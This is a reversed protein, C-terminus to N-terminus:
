KSERNASRAIELAGDVPEFMQESVKVRSDIKHVKFSFEERTINAYRFVSGATGLPIMAEGHAFLTRVVSGALEALEAGARRLVDRATEDGANAAALVAPLLAAFDPSSASAAALQEVSELKWSAKVESFLKSDEPLDRTESNQAAMQLLANVATRGIWYGSGEDSISYGWGGARATKGNADRGYAISGTGAIVIVGPGSGLAAQMAIQMDGVVEIEGAVIEALMKQVVTAVEKRGAGAVGACARRVDKPDIKAAECAQRVAQHLSERARAEGVRAINSPGAVASGLVSVEDGVVCTTKTGGGDIGLYYTV